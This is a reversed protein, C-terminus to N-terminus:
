KTTTRDELTHYLSRVAEIEFENLNKDEYDAVTMEGLLKALASIEAESMSITWGIAIVKAM